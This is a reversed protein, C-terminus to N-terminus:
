HQSGKPWMVHNRASEGEFSPGVKCGRRILAGHSLAQAGLAGGHEGPFPILAAAM